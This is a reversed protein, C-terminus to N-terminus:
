CRDTGALWRSVHEGRLRAAATITVADRTPHDDIADVLSGAALALSNVLVALQAALPKPDAPDGNTEELEALMKSAWTAADTLNQAAFCVHAGAFETTTPEANM